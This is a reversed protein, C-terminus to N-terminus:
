ARGAAAGRKTLLSKFVNRYCETVESAIDSIIKRETPVMFVMNSARGYDMNLKCLQTHVSSSPLIRLTHNRM